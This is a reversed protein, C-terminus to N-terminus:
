PLNMQVAAVKAEPPCGEGNPYYFSYEPIFTETKASGQWTVTFTIKEPTFGVFLVGNRLCSFHSSTSFDRGDIVETGEYIVSTGPQPCAAFINEGNELTGVVKYVNPVEGGLYLTFTDPAGILTCGQVIETVIVTEVIVEPTVPPHTPTCAVAVFGWIALFISSRIVTKIKM